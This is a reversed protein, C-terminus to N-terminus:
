SITFSVGPGAPLRLIDFEEILKPVALDGFAIVDNRMASRRVQVLAVSVILGWDGGVAQNFDLNALLQFVGPAVQDFAPAAPVPARVYNLTNTRPDAVETGQGRADVSDTFAAFYLNIPLTPGVLNFFAEGAADRFRDGANAM